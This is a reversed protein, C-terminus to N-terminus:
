KPKSHIKVTPDIISTHLINIIFPHFPKKAFAFQFFIQRNNLFIIYPPYISLTKRICAFKSFNILYGTSVTLAKSCSLSFNM